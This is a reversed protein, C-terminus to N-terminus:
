PATPTVRVSMGQNAAFSIEDIVYPSTQSVAKVGRFEAPKLVSSLNVEALGKLQDKFKFGDLPINPWIRTGSTNPLLKSGRIALTSSGKVVPRDTRFKIKSVTELPVAASAGGFEVTLSTMNLSKVRGTISSGDKLQIDALPPISVPLWTDQAQAYVAQTPLHAVVCGYSFAALVFLKLHKM